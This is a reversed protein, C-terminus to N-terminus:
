TSSSTCDVHFLYLSKALPELLQVQIPRTWKTDVLEHWQRFQLLIWEYLADDLDKVRVAVSFDVEFTLLLLQCYSTLQCFAADGRQWRERIHISEDLRPVLRVYQEKSGCSDAGLRCRSGHSWCLGCAADTAIHRIKAHTSAIRGLILIGHTLQLFM